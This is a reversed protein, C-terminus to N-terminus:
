GPWCAWNRYARCADEPLILELARRLSRAADGRRTQSRRILSYAVGANNLAHVMVGEAGAARGSHACARGLRNGPRVRLGAHADALDRQDRPGTRRKGAGAGAARARSPLATAVARRDGQEWYIRGILRQAAGAGERDGLLECLAYCAEFTALADQLQGRVWQCEGLKRLLRARGAPDLAPWQELAAQYYRIAADLAASRRAQDGAQDNYVAPRRQCSRWRSTGRWSRRSRARRRGM